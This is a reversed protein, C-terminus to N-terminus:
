SYLILSLDSPWAESRRPPAKNASTPRSSQSYRTHSLPPSAELESIEAKSARHLRHHASCAFASAKFPGLRRPSFSLCRRSSTAPQVAAMRQQSLPAHSCAWWPVATKSKPKRHSKVDRSWFSFFSLHIQETTLRQGEERGRRRLFELQIVDDIGGHKLGALLAQSCSASWVLAVTVRNVHQCLKPCLDAVLLQLHNGTIAPAAQIAPTLKSASIFTLVM